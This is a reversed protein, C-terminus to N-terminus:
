IAEKEGLLGDYSKLDVKEIHVQARPPPYAKWSSVIMVVESASIPGGLMLLSELARDVLSEGETAALYLVALYEKSAKQVTHHSKLGDYLM